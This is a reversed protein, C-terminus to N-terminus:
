ASTSELALHLSAKRAGISVTCAFNGSRGLLVQHNIMNWTHPVLKTYERAFAHNGVQACIYPM